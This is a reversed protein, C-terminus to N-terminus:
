IGYRKSALGSGFTHYTSYILSAAMRDRDVVSLCVTDRHIAELAAAPGARVRRPDILGALQDATEEALMHGLRRPPDGIFRDRADYAL